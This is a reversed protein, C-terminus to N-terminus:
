IYVCYLYIYIDICYIYIYKVNNLMRQGIIPQMNSWGSPHDSWSLYRWTWRLSRCQFLHSTTPCFDKPSSFGHSFSPFIQHSIIPFYLHTGIEPQDDFGGRLNLVSYWFNMCKWVCGLCFPLFISNNKQLDCHGGWVRVAPLSTANSEWM